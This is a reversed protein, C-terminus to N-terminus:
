KNKKLFIVKHNSKKEYIPIALRSLPGVAEYREAQVLIKMTEEVKQTLAEETFKSSQAAPM